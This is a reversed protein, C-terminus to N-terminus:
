DPSWGPAHGLSGGEEFTCPILRLRERRPEGKLAEVLEEVVGRGLETGPSRM